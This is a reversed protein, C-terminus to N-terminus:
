IGRVSFGGVGSTRTNDPKAIELPRPQISELEIRQLFIDVDYKDTVIYTIPKQKKIRELLPKFKYKYNEDNSLITCGLSYNAFGGTDHVNIGFYGTEVKVITGASNTRAVLVENEDQGLATRGPIWRHNRVRYSTYVGNLLHAINNQKSKPDMTVNFRWLRSQGSSTNEYVILNDNNVNTDNFCIEKNGRIGIVNITDPETSFKANGYVRRFHKGNFEFKSKADSYKYLLHYWLVKFIEPTYYKGEFELLNRM